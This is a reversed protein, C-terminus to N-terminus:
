VTGIGLLDRLRRAESDGTARRIKATSPTPRRLGSRLARVRGVARCVLEGADGGAMLMGTVEAVAEDLADARRCVLFLEVGAQLGRRAAEGFSFAEAVGKMELDDSVILGGYGCHDRLLGQLIPRSLTAPHDADLTPFLIHATMIMQMREALEAFPRLEVAELRERDFPLTPLALHSDVDTDGHGPFHKGCGLCGSEQLGDLFAGGYVIVEDPTRGFARRGIIPNDPNTDIDLVPAFDVNFGAALCERGTQWGARRCLAPDGREALEAMPPLHTFPARLRAVLGGEQDVACIAPLGSGGAASAAQVAATQAVLPPLSIAGREDRELNRAFLIVGALGRGLRAAYAQPLSTGEYGAVFLELALAEAAAADAPRAPQLSAPASTM